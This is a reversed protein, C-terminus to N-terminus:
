LMETVGDISDDAHKGRPRAPHGVGELSQPDRWFDFVAVQQVCAITCFPACAKKTDYERALDELTYEAIPIASVGRSCTVTRGALIERPWTDVGTGPIHMWRLGIEDLRDHLPLVRFPGFMAEARVDDPVQDARYSLVEADPVTARIIEAAPEVEALPVSEGPTITGPVHPASFQLAREGFSPDVPSSSM